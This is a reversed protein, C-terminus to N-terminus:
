FHNLRYVKNCPLTSVGARVVRMNAEFRLGSASPMTKTFLGLTFNVDLKRIKWGKAKVFLRIHEIVHRFPRM